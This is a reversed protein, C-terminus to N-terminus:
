KELVKTGNSQITRGAGLKQLLMRKMMSLIFSLAGTKPSITFSEIKLSTDLVM